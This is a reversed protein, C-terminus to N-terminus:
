IAKFVELAKTDLHVRTELKVKNELFDRHVKLALLEQFDQIAKIGLLELIELKVRNERSDRHVKLVPHAVIARFVLNVV